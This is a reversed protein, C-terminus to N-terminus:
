LKKLTEMLQSNEELEKNYKMENQKSKKQKLKQQYV